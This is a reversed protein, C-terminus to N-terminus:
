KKAELGILVWGAAIYAHTIAFTAWAAIDKGALLFIIALILWFVASFALMLQALKM